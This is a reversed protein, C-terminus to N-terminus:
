AFLAELKRKQKEKLFSIQLTYNEDITKSLEDLLTDFESSTMFEVVSRSNKPLRKLQMAAQVMFYSNYAILLEKIQTERAPFLKKYVNILNKGDKTAAFSFIRDSMGNMCYQLCTINKM